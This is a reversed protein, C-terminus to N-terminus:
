EMLVLMIDAINSGTSGTEILSNGLKKFFVHSDNRSLYEELNLDKKLALDRSSNDILAGAIKFDRSNDAGDTGISAMVFNNDVNVHSLAGLILESNRGGVGDGKVTVTTEGGAILLVQKGFEKRLKKAADVLEKGVKRAEGELAISYIDSEIKLKSASERIHNCAMELNVLIEHSTKKFITDNKKPTEPILNNNGNNIHNIVSGPIKYNKLQNLIDLCDSFTSDDPYTPGSAIMDIPDGLVDSIVLSISTANNMLKILNGGKVISVHKRLSNIKKINLGSKLLNENMSQLDKLTIGEQPSCLLASGGGSILFIVLDKETLESLAEIFINTSQINLESPVPHTGELISIYNLTYNEKTGEVVIIKGGTIQNGLIKELAEAMYGSAKGIGFVFIREFKSLDLEKGKINLSNDKLSLSNNIVNHPNIFDLVNDILLLLTKRLSKLSESSNILESANKIYKV